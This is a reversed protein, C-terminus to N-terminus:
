RTALVTQGAILKEGIKVNIQEDHKLTIIVYGDTLVSINDGQEVNQSNTIDISNNCFGSLLKIKIGAIKLVVQENLGSAKLSNPNLHLGKQIKKIKLEGSVPAKINHTDLLGVKCYIKTKDDFKDIATVKGDVASLIHKTNEFIYRSPNRYMYVIFLTVIIAINGLFDLDLIIFFLTVVLAVIIPKLGQSLIISKNNM